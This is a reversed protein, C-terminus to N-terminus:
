VRFGKLANCDTWFWLWFDIMYVAKAEDGCPKPAHKSATAQCSRPHPHTHWSPSSALRDLCKFDRLPMPQMSISDKSGVHHPIDYAYISCHVQTAMCPWALMGLVQFPCPMVGVHKSQVTSTLALRCYLTSCLTSVAASIAAFDCQVLILAMCMANSGSGWFAEMPGRPGECGAQPGDWSCLVGLYYM